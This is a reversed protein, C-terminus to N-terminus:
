NIKLLSVLNKNVAYFEVGNEKCFRVADDLTKGHRYTWLLLRFGDNQLRILVEFVREKPKGIHPYGDEVITGDFDIAITKNKM